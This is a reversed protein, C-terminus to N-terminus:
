KQIYFKNSTIATASPQGYPSQGPLPQNPYSQIMYTQGPYGAPAPQFQQMQQYPVQQYGPPFQQFQQFQQVQQFQQQPVPYGYPYPRPRPGCGNCGGCGGGFLGGGGCNNNSIVSGLLLGGIFGIGGWRQDNPNAFQALTDTGRLLTTKNPYFNM